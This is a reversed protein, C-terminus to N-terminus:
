DAFELIRLRLNHTLFPPQFCLCLVVVDYEDFFMVSALTDMSYRHTRPPMKGQAIGMEIYEGQFLLM